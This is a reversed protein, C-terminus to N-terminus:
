APVLAREPTISVLDAPLADLIRPVKHHAGVRGERTLWAHFSGPALRRVAPAELALGDRRTRYTPSLAQLAEDLARALAAEDGRAAEVLWVHRARGGASPPPTALAVEGLALGLRAGAAVAAAEVQSISVKEGAVNAWRHVRGTVVMRPPAVSTFRVTDGVPYAFLGAWSTLVLAYDVGVEVQDLRLRTPRPSTLEDPPVFELYIADSLPLYGPAPGDQIGFFGESASYMARSTVPGFTADLGARYPEVFTGGTIVLGVDPWLDRLREVGLRRAAHDALSLLWPPMGIVTRVDQGRALDLLRDLKETWTPLEDLADGPLLRRRWIRPRERLGITTAAGRLVGDPGPRLPTCAGLFLLKGLLPRLSGQELLASALLLQVASANARLLERTVPVEKQASTTGTTLSWYLPRALHPRHEDLGRLPVRAAFDDPGRVDGLGFARGLPTDAHRALLRRLVQAQLAAPRRRLRELRRRQRWLVLSTLASM